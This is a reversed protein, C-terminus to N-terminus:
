CKVRQLWTEGLNAPALFSVNMEVSVGGRASHDNSLLALTGLVDVIWV